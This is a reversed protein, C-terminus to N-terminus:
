GHHWWSRIRAVLWIVLGALVMLWGIAAITSFGAGGSDVSSSGNLGMVVGVVILALAILAQRKFKKATLETTVVPKGSVKAASSEAIPAACKPCAAALASVQTGCEPCSILAM